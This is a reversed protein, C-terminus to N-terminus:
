IQFIEITPLLCARLIGRTSRLEHQVVHEVSRFSSAKLLLVIDALGKTTDCSIVSDM